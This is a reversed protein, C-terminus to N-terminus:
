KGQSLTLSLHEKVNKLVGEDKTRMQLMFCKGFCGRGNTGFQLRKKGSLHCTAVWSDFHM